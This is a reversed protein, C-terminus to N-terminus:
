LSTEQVLSSVEEVLILKRARELLNDRAECWEQDIVDGVKLANVFLIGEHALVVLEDYQRETYAQLRAHTVLIDQLEALAARHNSIEALVQDIGLDKAMAM